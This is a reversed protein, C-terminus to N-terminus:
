RNKKHRAIPQQMNCGYSAECIGLDGADRAGPTKLRTEQFLFWGTASNIQPCSM